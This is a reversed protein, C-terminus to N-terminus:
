RFSAVLNQVVLNWGDALVFLLLKFPLSIMVPPMMFMGLSMLVTAVILDVVIFPLYIVFGMQFSQRLESVVFAATVTVTPADEVSDVSARSLVIMKELDEARTNNLMFSRFPVLAKKYADVQSMTGALYPQLAERNATELVPNMVVGTLLVALAVLLQGPPTTQTGLASRLFHLVILIRTFSTMLLFLAPLLTMAGLFLVVSVAGTLKLQDTGQGITMEVKPGVPAQVQVASPAAPTHVRAQAQASLPLCLLVVAILRRAISAFSAERKWTREVRSEEVGPALASELDGGELETLLTTGKDAISVVLVRSGVRLLGIGQRQGTAIRRLLRLELGAAGGAIRAQGRKLLYVVGALLGIILLLPFLMALM